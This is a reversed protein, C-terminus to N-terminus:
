DMSYSCDWNTVLGVTCSMVAATRRWIEELFLHFLGEGM